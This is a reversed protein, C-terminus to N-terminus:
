RRRVRTLSKIPVRPKRSIQAIQRDQAEIYTKALLDGDIDDLEAGPVKRNSTRTGDEYLVDFLAVEDVRRVTSRRAM